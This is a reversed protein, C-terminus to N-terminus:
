QNSIEAVLSDLRRSTNAEESLSSTLLSAVFGLGRENAASVAVGYGEVAARSARLPGAIVAAAPVQGAIGAFREHPTLPVLPAGEALMPVLCRLRDIHRNTERRQESLLLRLPLWKTRRFLIELDLALRTESAHMM